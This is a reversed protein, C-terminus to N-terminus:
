TVSLDQRPSKMDTTIKKIPCYRVINNAESLLLFLFVFIFVHCVFVLILVCFGVCVSVSVCLCPVDICCVVCLIHVHIRCMFLMSLRWVPRPMNLM